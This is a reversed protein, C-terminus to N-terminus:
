IYYHTNLRQELSSSFSYVDQNSDEFKPLGSPKWVLQFNEGLSQIGIEMKNLVGVFNDAIM